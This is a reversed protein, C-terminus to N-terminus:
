IDPETLLHIGDMKKFITMKEGKQIGWAAKKGHYRMMDESGELGPDEPAGPM